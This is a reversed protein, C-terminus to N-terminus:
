EESSYLILLKNKARAIANGVSKPTKNLSQAIEATSLGDLYLVTAKFEYSSLIKSIKLLFEGRQERRIIEDEPDTPIGAVEVIPVSNNLAANKPGLSKKVADLVSNRICKYAYTVFNAGCGASYGRIASYLGVLAEQYLDDHTGGCIFFGAAVSKALPSYKQLLGSEAEKDGRRALEIAQEDTM